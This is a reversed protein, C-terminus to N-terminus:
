GVHNRSSSSQKDHVWYINFLIDLMSTYKNKTLEIPIIIVAPIIISVYTYSQNLLFAAYIVHYFAMRYLGVKEENNNLASIGAIMMGLTKGNNYILGLFVTALYVIIVSYIYSYGAFYAGTSVLAALGLDVVVSLIRKIIM